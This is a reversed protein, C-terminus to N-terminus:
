QHNQLSKKKTQLGNKTYPSCYKSLAKVLIPLSYTPLQIAGMLAMYEPGLYAGAVTYTLLVNRNAATIAALLAPDLGQRRYFLFGTLFFLICLAIGILLFSLGHTFSQDFMKRFEGVLGFPFTFVLLITVQSLKAHTRHLLHHPILRYCLASIGMPGLIFIMLRQIYSQMDLSFNSDQFLLFNIYLVAPMMLTSAITMAMAKLADLGVSRAIAPTAFLSGTATVASIALLMSSSAGLLGSISCAIISLAIAHFCAYCWINLQGLLNILERQKMGLLTFLMLFFLIYPLFPFVIASATPFIFGFIASLMLLIPSHRSLFVLM